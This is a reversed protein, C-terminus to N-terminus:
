AADREGESGERAEPARPPTSVADAAACAALLDRMSMAPLREGSLEEPRRNEYAKEHAAAAVPEAAPEHASM